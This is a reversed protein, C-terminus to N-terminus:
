RKIALGAVGEALSAYVKNDKLKGFKPKIERWQLVTMSYVQFANPDGLVEVDVRDSDLDMRVYCISRAPIIANIPTTERRQTALDADATWTDVDRLKVPSLVRYPKVRYVGLTDATVYDRDMQEEIKNARAEFGPQSSQYEPTFVAAFLSLAASAIHNGNAM